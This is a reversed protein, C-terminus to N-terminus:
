SGLKTTDLGQGAAPWGSTQGGVRLVGRFAVAPMPRGFHYGQGLTFGLRGAEAALAETEIGEAVSLLGSVQILQLVAAAIGRQREDTDIGAILSRDVKASKAPLCRLYAIASYGTGFDDISLRVGLRRLSEMAFLEEAAGHLELNETIELVLVDGPLDRARLEGTIFDVFCLSKLEDAEVNVSVRFGDGVLGANQWESVDDLVQRVMSETLPKMLDAQRALPLVEDPSILGYVPHDWRMLAEAAATQGSALDVIPQYYPVVIRETALGGRLQNTLEAARRRAWLMSDEFVHIKTGRSRKSVYMATDAELMLSEQTSDPRAISIGCSFGIRRAQADPVVPTAEIARMLRRCLAEAGEVDADGALLVAFEDGGLRYAGDNERMCRTLLDAVGRLALDGMHHGLHDNVEKFHDLDLSVVVPPAEGRRYEVLRHELALEMAKRNGVGTLHDTITLQRLADTASKLDRTREAVRRDLVQLNTSLDEAMANIGIIIADLEDRQDSPQLPQSFDENAIRLLGDFIQNIRGGWSRDPKGNVAPRGVM